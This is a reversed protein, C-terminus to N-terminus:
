YINHVDDLDYSAILEKMEPLAEDIAINDASGSEGHSKFYKLKHRKQLM